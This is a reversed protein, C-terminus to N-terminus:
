YRNTPRLANHILQHLHHSCIEQPATDAYSLLGNSAFFELNSKSIREKIEISELLLNNLTTSKKPLLVSIRNIMAYLWLNVRHANSYSGWSIQPSMPKRIIRALKNFVRKLEEFLNEQTESSLYKILVALEDTFAGDAELTFHLNNDKFSAQWQDMLEDLWQGAVQVISVTKQEMLPILMSELVWPKLHHLRGSYNRVPKLIDKLEKDNIPTSLSCKLVTILDAKVASDINNAENILWCLITHNIGTSTFHPIKSLAEVGRKGRHMENKLAHLGVWVLISARSELLANIKEPDNDFAICLCIHKLADVILARPRTKKIPKSLIADLWSVLAKPDESWLLKVSYYEGLSVEVPSYTFISFPNSKSLLLETLKQHRIQEIDIYQNKISPQNADARNPSIHDLLSQKVQASLPTQDKNLLCCAYCSAPSNAILHGLTDWAPHFNETPLGESWLKAPLEDFLDPNLQKEKIYGKTIMRGLLASGSLESLQDDYLWWGLLSGAYPLKIFSLTDNLVKTKEEKLQLNASNFILKALPPKSSCGYLTTQIIQDVYEFVNPIVDLPIPTALLPHSENARQISNSLHYGALAQGNASRILIMRDHLKSEPMALVKLSVSGFYGDNWGTCRQLLNDVRSAQDSEKVNNDNSTKETTIILYDASATGLRNLLDIGVDEIYPDIWAIKADHHKEFIEKLWSTLQVRSMSDTDLTPFFRGNSKDPFLQTLKKQTLRNLPVWPDINFDGMKSRSPHTARVVKKVKDLKEAEKKPVKKDLWAFQNNSVASEILRFNLNSQRYFFNGTKLVLSAQEGNSDLSFIELTYATSAQNQFSELEFQHYLPYSSGKSFNTIYSSQVCDDSYSKIVVLLDSPPQTLPESLNLFAKEGKLNIDYKLQEKVTLSPSCIFEFDSVRWSDIKSFDMGTDVDLVKCAVEAILKDDGHPSNFVSPKEEPSIAGSDVSCYSSPSLRNTTFRYYNRTPLHMVPRIIPNTGFVSKGIVKFLQEDLELEAKQSAEQITAGNSFHELFVKLKRSCAHLVLTHIQVSCTDGCVVKKSSTCSWSDSLYTSPLSRGHLFRLENLDNRQIELIWVQTVTINTDDGFLNFLKPNTFLSNLPNSM